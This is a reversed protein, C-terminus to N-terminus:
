SSKKQTEGLKSKEAALRMDKGTKEWDSKIADADSYKPLLITSRESPFLNIVSGIGRLFDKM